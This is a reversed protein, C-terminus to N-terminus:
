FVILRGEPFAGKWGCPFHGKLYWYAHAAYFGPPFVDAYECEMCLHLMDWNVVDVFKKPLQYESVVSATKEQVLDIVVPRMEAVVENWKRYRDLSVERVRAVFQNVAELRLNEWELRSCSKIAEGWSKLVDAHQAQEADLVGVAIFWNVNILEKLTAETREHM